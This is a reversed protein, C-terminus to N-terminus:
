IAERRRKIALHSNHLVHGHLINLAGCCTKMVGVLLEAPWLLRLLYLLPRRGVILYRFFWRLCMVSCMTGVVVYEVGVIRCMIEQMLQFALTDM